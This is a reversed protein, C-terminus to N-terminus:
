AKWQKLKRQLTRVSIGLSEAARTRNGDHRSLARHIASREIDALTEIDSASAEDASSNRGNYYAGASISMCDPRLHDPLTDLSVRPEDDVASRGEPPLGLQSVVQAVWWGLQSLNGPWPFREVAQIVNGDLIVRAGGTQRDFLAGLMPRIDEPRQRLPPLEITIVSLCYALDTRLQGSEIAREVPQGIGAIVRVDYQRRGPHSLLTLSRKEVLNVLEAQHTEPLRAIDDIYLSGHDADGVAQGFSGISEQREGETSKANQGGDANQGGPSNSSLGRPFHGGGAMEADWRVFPRHRRGSSRHIAHALEVRGTGREGVVVLPVDSSAAKWARSRARCAADSEGCLVPVFELDLPAKSKGTM